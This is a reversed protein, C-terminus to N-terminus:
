WMDYHYWNEKQGKRWKSLNSWYWIFEPGEHDSSIPAQPLESPGKVSPNLLNQEELAQGYRKKIAKLRCHFFIELAIGSAILFIGFILFVIGRKKIREDLQCETVWTEIAVVNSSPIKPETRTEAFLWSSHGYRKASGNLILETGKTLIPLVSVIDTGIIIFIKTLLDMNQFLTIPVLAALGPLAITIFTSLNDADESTEKENDSNRVAEQFAPNDLSDMHRFHSSSMSSGGWTGIVATGTDFKVFTGNNEGACEATKVPAAEFSRVGRRRVYEVFTNREWAGVVKVPEKDTVSVQIEWNGGSDFGVFRAIRCKRFSDPRAHLVDDNWTRNWSM